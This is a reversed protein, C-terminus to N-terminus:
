QIARTAELIPMMTAFVVYGVVGSMLVILLPELAATFKGIALRVETEYGEKLNGLMETLEGTKQGVNIIHRVLPPFIKSQELTPAIDSGARVAREMVDLERALVLNHTNKRVLEVAEVFPVGSKLLLSLMQAFQAIANKRALVGWLPLRLQLEQFRLRTMPWRYALGGAVAVAVSASVLLVWHGIIFDSINKLLATSAPLGRGSAELVTLLQPIVYSMLFLVVGTGVIALILPYALATALRTKNTQQERMYAAIERLSEPMHGSAEGVKVATSFVSNFWRPHERLAETLSSGAAVKSRLDRLIPVIRGDQQRALVELAEVLTVGSGLLLSLQRAFEAVQEDRRGRSVGWSFSVKKEFRVQEFSLLRSERERLMQRGAAATDATLTGALLRGDPGHAKYSFVPM